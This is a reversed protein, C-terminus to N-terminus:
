KRISLHWFATRLRDIEGLYIEISRRAQENDVRLRDIEDELLNVLKHLRDMEKVASGLNWAKVLADDLKRKM